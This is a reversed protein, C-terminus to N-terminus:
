ISLTIFTSQLCKLARQQVSIISSRERSAGDNSLASADDAAAGGEPVVKLPISFSFAEDFVGGKHQAPPVPSASTSSDRNRGNDRGSDRGSGGEQGSQELDEKFHSRRDLCFDLDM